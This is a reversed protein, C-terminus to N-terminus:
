DSADYWAARWGAVGMAKARRAGAQLLTLVRQTRTPEEPAGARGTEVFSPRLNWFADRGYSVLYLARLIAEYRDREAKVSEAFVQECTRRVADDVVKAAGEIKPMIKRAKEIGYAQFASYNDARLAAATVKHFDVKVERGRFTDVFGREVAKMAEPDSWGPPALAGLEYKPDVKAESWLAKLVAMMDSTTLGNAHRKQLRKELSQEAPPAEVDQAAAREEKTCGKGKTWACGDACEAKKRGSCSRSGKYRPGTMVARPLITVREIDRDAAAYADHMKRRRARGEMQIVAKLTRMQVSLILRAGLRAPADTDDFTHGTAFKLHTVLVANPAAAGFEKKLRKVGAASEDDTLLMLRFKSAAANKKALAAHLSKAMGKTSMFILAKRKPDLRDWVVPAAADVIKGLRTHHELATAKWGGKRAVSFTDVGSVPVDVTLMEPPKFAAFDIADRDASYYFVQAGDFKDRLGKAVTQRGGVGCAKQEDSAADTALGLDALQVPAMTSPTFQALLTLFTPVTVLPTATLGLLKAYRRKKLYAVVARMSDAWGKANEPTALEHVEDMVIATGDLESTAFPKKTRYDQVKNGAQVYTLLLVPKTKHWEGVSVLKDFSGTCALDHWSPSTRLEEYQSKAQQQDNVLVVIRLGKEFWIRAARAWVISKGTGTDAVVLLEKVRLAPVGVADQWLDLTKAPPTACSSRYKAPLEYRQALFAQLLQTAEKPRTWVAHGEDPLAVDAELIKSYQEYFYVPRQVLNRKGFRWAARVSKDTLRAGARVATAVAGVAGKAESVAARAGAKVGVKLLKASAAAADGAQQRRRALRADREAAQWQGPRSYDYTTVLRHPRRCDAARTVCRERQEALAEDDLSCDITHPEDPCREAYGTARRATKKAARAAARQAKQAATPPPPPRRSRTSVM